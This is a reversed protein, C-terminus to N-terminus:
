GRWILHPPPLQKAKMMQMDNDWWNKVETLSCMTGWQSEMWKIKTYYFGDEPNYRYSGEPGKLVAAAAIWVDWDAAAENGYRQESSAQQLRKSSAAEEAARASAAEEAARAAKQAEAAAKKKAAAAAEKKAAEAEKERALRAAEAKAEEEAKALRLAEAAELRAEEEAAALAKLADEERARALRAREDALRAAEQEAVAKSKAALEVAELAAADDVHQQRAVAELALHEVDEAAESVHLPVNDDDASPPPARGQALWADKDVVLTQRSDAPAEETAVNNLEGVDEDEAARVALRAAGEQGDAGSSEMPVPVQETVRHRASTVRAQARWVDREATAKKRQVTLRASEEKAAKSKEKALRISEEAATKQVAMQERQAKIQARKETAAENRETALRIAEKVKDKEMDLQEREAAIRALRAEAAKRRERVQTMCHADRAESSGPSRVPPEAWPEDESFICSAHQPSTHRPSNCPSASKNTNALREQYSSIVTHMDCIKAEDRARHHQALAADAEPLHAILRDIGSTDSVRDLGRPGAGSARRGGGVRVGGVASADVRRAEGANGDKRLQEFLAEREVRLGSLNSKSLHLFAERHESFGQRQGEESAITQSVDLLIKDADQLMRAVLLSQRSAAAVDGGAAVVDEVEGKVMM